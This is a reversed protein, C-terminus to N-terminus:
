RVREVRYGRARLMELVGREGLLHAAGVAIFAGGQSLERELIPMWRENRRFLVVEYFGPAQALQEPDFLQATLAAEDGRAFAQLLQEGHEKDMDAMTRRLERVQEELPIADFMALQDEVTELYGLSLGRKKATEMLELDMMRGASDPKIEQLASQIQAVGLMTAPMWPKLRELMPPPIQAGLLAVLENWSEEGLLARLSQGEPLLASQLMRSPDSGTVDAELMVRKADAFRARAEETLVEEFGFGVHMTGLLHSVGGPGHVAYLFLGPTGDREPRAESQAESAAVPASAVAPPQRQAGCAATWALLLLALFRRLHPRRALAALLPTRLDTFM